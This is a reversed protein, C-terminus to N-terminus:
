LAVCWIEPVDRVLHDYRYPSCKLVLAQYSCGVSCKDKTVWGLHVRAFPLRLDMLEGPQLLLLAPKLSVTSTGKNGGSLNCGGLESSCRNLVWSLNLPIFVILQSRLHVRMCEESRRGRKSAEDKRPNTDCPARTCSGNISRGSLVFVPLQLDRVTVCLVRMKDMFALSSARPRRLIVVRLPELRKLGLLQKNQDYLTNEKM